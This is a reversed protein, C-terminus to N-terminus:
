VVVALRETRYIEFVREILAKTEQRRNALQSLTICGGAHLQTDIDEVATLHDLARQMPFEGTVEAKKKALDLFRARVTEFCECVKKEM